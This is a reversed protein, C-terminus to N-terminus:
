RSLATTVNTKQQFHLAAARSFVRSDCHTSEPPLCAPHLRMEKQHMSTTSPDKRNLYGKEPGYNIISLQYNIPGLRRLVDSLAIPRHDKRFSYM